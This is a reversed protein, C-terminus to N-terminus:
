ARERGAQEMGGRVEVLRAPVEHAPDARAAGRDHEVPERVGAVVRDHEALGAGALRHERAGLHAAAQDPADPHERHIRQAVVPPERRLEAPRVEVEPRRPDRDVGEGERPGDGVPREGGLDCAEGTEGRRHGAAQRALLPRREVM